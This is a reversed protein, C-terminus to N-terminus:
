MATSFVSPRYTVAFLGLEAGSKQKKDCRNKTRNGEVFTGRCQSHLSQGNAECYEPFAALHSGDPCKLGNSIAMRCTTKEVFYSNTEFIPIKLVRNYTFRAKKKRKIL